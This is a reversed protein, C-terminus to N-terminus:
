PPHMIRVVEHTYANGDVIWVPLIRYKMFYYKKRVRHHILYGINPNEEFLHYLPIDDRRKHYTFVADDFNRPRFGYTSNMRDRLLALYPDSDLRLNRMLVHPPTDKDIYTYLSMDVTDRHYRIRPLYVLSHKMTETASREGEFESPFTRSGGSEVNIAVSSPVHPKLFYEPDQLTHTVTHAILSEYPSRVEICEDEEEVLDYCDEDLSTGSYVTQPELFDVGYWIDLIAFMRLECTLSHVKLSFDDIIKLITSVYDDTNEYQTISDLIFTSTKLEKLFRIEYSDTTVVVGTLLDHLREKLLNATSSLIARNCSLSNSLRIGNELSAFLSSLSKEPILVDQDLTPLYLPDHVSESISADDSTADPLCCAELSSPM